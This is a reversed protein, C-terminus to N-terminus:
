AKGGHKHTKSLYKEYSSRTKILEDSIESIITKSFIDLLSIPKAEPFDEPMSKTDEMIKKSAPHCCLRIYHNIISLLDHRSRDEIEADLSELLFNVTDICAHPVKADKSKGERNLQVLVDTAQESLGLVVRIEKVGKKEYKDTGLLYDCSCDLTDSIKKLVDIDPKRKDNEYFNITVRDLQVAKAFSEQTRYGREIRRKRLRESFISM